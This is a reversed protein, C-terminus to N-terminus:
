VGRQEIRQYQAETDPPVSAQIKKMAMVFSKIFIPIREKLASRAAKDVLFQMDVPPGAM